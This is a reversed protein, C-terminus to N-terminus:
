KENGEVKKVTADKQNVAEAKELKLSDTAITDKKAAQRQGGPAFGPGQLQSQNLPINKPTSWKFLQKLNSLRRRFLFGGGMETIEGELISEYGTHRFLRAYMTVNQTQKLLYEFSIDSILNESFNEDAGADTTYNGGVSIKFRNHFLSKSLQYSYSTASGTEGNVANGYQDVGLSIDVGKVNNALWGNITSTLINYMTGQLLDGSATKVGAGSYQGTLLMNLAAMSRADPTMSQLENRISMDDDTTMDFEIKPSQLNNTIDVGVQFNVIRSNGNEIVSARVDDTARINFSPNMLDGQFQVYSEPNFVFKKEGVIPMSYSAFGNGTFIQGNLRMDGLYNQFYTLSGSPEIEVKASGTTTSGPYIVNVQMGPELNLNALIRMSFSPPAVTDERNILVTDNFNVFKVVGSTNHATLQATTQPISYTVNTSKLINVGANINFHELPGRANAHIDMFLKGYLDSHARQDNNILQFNTANLKLDFMMSKFDSMDITGDIEIPNQNAGWVDFKNFDIVNNAVLISDQNFKVSSGMMPIFVGVSDCAVYGNLKPASLSGGVDLLGNLAGSLQAVDKGLFPNAINLPFQTLELQLTKVQPVKLSDPVLLAKAALANKGNIKLGLRAGTTGEENLGARLSLNFNGVNMRDYTFNYVGVTGNGYIWGENYGVRVDADVSATIPPAFVSLQMFDQIQINDLALHLEDKGQDGPETKLLISSKPSNAMLNADVKYNKLNVTIDNDSNFTWPIYAITAKLPTFHVSVTSDQFAATLGLRYGTEGKQNQQRVGLMLRNEGLYGNANVDAFEALPNNARNGLHARYDLLEGRQKLGFTITDLRMKATTLETVGFNASIISDNSIHGYITDVSLGAGALLDAVAGNGGAELNLNFVPLNRQLMEVNLNRDAIQRSVSDGVTTFCGILDKLGTRAEFNLCTGKADVDAFVRDVTSKFTLDVDNPIVYFSTPSTYAFDKLCLNVDYLWKEPSASGDLSMTGSLIGEEPTLGLAMLDVHDIVVKMDTTYLDPALTGAGALNLRLIENPSNLDITYDGDHLTVDATINNLTQDQYDISEVDLHISTDAGPKTPNFGAGQAQLSASVYGIGLDPVFSKVNIDKVTLDAQYKESNLAVSGDAVVSGMSTKLDFNAAYEQNHASAEGQITLSPIEFDKLKLINDIVKPGTVAGDFKIDAQLKKIDFVNQAYGSAKLQLVKDVGVRLEPINIDALTGAAEIDFNLPSRSPLQQTYPKMAPVFAEIDPWGVHGFANVNFPATQQMEMVAFPIDATANLDSYLTHLSVNKLTLGTSDVAVLGHGETVVLGSREKAAILEIPLRVTSAENYFNDLTINVDSFQLYSPDFGPQPKAGKVAYLAKFDKVSVTDGKIVMPPGAVSTTDVPAPHTKIYEPTPTLYTLDGNATALYDATVSNKGLDIVGNRIVVSKTILSLTDITPLMAMGFNFDEIQADHLLIKLDLPPAASDNEAPKKAWVNMDLSLDAQKILLKNVDVTMTKIDVSSKDDIQILNARLKLLMSSDASMIRIGAEELKLENIDVDLKFLPALKVDAIVEKAYVMTDGTAEIVTVGDLAVDLPWKLRFRDIGIKMGTSKEVVNCAVDKIFTQVPPVYILIPVLIAIFIVSIIIWMLTKLVIRLWKPHIWHKKPPKGGKERGDKGSDASEGEQAQSENDSASSEEAVPTASPQSVSSNEPTAPVEPTPNQKIEEEM